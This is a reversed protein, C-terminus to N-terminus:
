PQVEQQDELTIHTFGAEDAFGTFGIRQLTRPDATYLKAFESRVDEFWDRMQQADLDRASDGLGVLALIGRGLDGAQAQQLLVNQRLIDLALFPVGHERRAAHDLTALGLKWAAPDAPLTNFRWGDHRPQALARDVRGALDFPSGPVVCAALARLTRLEDLTLAGAAHTENQQLRGLLATRTQPATLGSDILAAFDNSLTAAQPQSPLGLTHFFEIM